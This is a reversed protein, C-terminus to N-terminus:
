VIPNEFLDDPPLDDGDNSDDQTNRFIEAIDADANDTDGVDEFIEEWQKMEQLRDAEFIPIRFCGLKLRIHFRKFQLPCKGTLDKACIKNNTLALCM